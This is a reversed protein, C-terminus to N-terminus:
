GTLRSEPKALYRLLNEPAYHAMQDEHRVKAAPHLSETAPSDVGIERVVGRTLRYLGTRSNHLTDLPGPVVTTCVHDDLFVLGCAKAKGIMWKLTVHALGQEAYGGGVDGHVGAFWAQEVVQEPKPADTWLTPSFPARREDIGIAHYAFRVRRSLRTNHFEYPKRSLGRWGRVPVGRTGVTDWVGIFKIDIERSYAQRFAVADAPDPDPDDRRYLAFARQFEQAHQKRLLGCKRIFGATSRVTYAGRSFGFLFVEDGDALNNMLFRYADEINRDLGQGFAGGTIRDFSNGTGVGRDYFIAQQTGDPAQPSILHSIRVVNTPHRQEPSNWTGDSCVILRKM